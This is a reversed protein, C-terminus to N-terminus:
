LTQGIAVTISICNPTSKLTQMLIQQGFVAKPTFSCQFEDNPTIQLSIQQGFVDDPSCRRFYFQLLIQQGFLDKPTSRCLFKNALYM